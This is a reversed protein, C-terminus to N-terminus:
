IFVAYLLLKVSNGTKRPKCDIKRMFVKDQCVTPLEVSDGCHALLSVNVTISLVSISYSM